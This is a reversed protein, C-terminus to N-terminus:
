YSTSTVNGGGYYTGIGSCPSACGMCCYNPSSPVTIFGWTPVGAPVIYKFDESYEFDGWGDKRKKCSKVTETLYKDKVTSELKAIKGKADALEAYAAKAQNADAPDLVIVKRSQASGIAGLWLCGLAFLVWSAVLLAKRM